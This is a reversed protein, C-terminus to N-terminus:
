SCLRRHMGSVLLLTPCAIKDGTMPLAPSGPPTAVIWRLTKDTYMPAIPAIPPEKRGVGVLRRLRLM